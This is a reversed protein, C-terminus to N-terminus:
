KSFKPFIFGTLLELSCGLDEAIKLMQEPTRVRIFIFPINNMSVIGNKVSEWLEEFTRILSTEAISIEKDGIADELCIAISKLGKNKNNIIDKIKM